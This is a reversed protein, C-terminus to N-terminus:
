YEERVDPGSVLEKEEPTEGVKRRKKADRYSKSTRIKLADLFLSETPELDGISDTVDSDLPVLRVGALRETLAKEAEVSVEIVILRGGSDHRVKAGSSAIASLAKNREARFGLGRERSAEEPRLILLKLDEDM